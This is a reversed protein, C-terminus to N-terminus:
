RLGLYLLYGIIFLLPISGVIGGGAQVIDLTHTTGVTGTETFITPSLVTPTGNIIGILNGTTIDEM